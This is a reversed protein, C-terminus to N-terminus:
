VLKMVRGEGFNSKMVWVSKSQEIPKRKGRAMEVIKEQNRMIEQM